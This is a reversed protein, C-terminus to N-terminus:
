PLQVMGTPDRLGETIRRGMETAKNWDSRSLCLKAKRYLSGAQLTRECVIAHDSLDATQV